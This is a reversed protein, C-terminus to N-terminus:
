KSFSRKRAKESTITYWRIKHWVIETNFFSGLALVNPFELTVEDCKIEDIYHANFTAEYGQALIKRLESYIGMIDKKLVEERDKWDVYFTVKAMYNAM